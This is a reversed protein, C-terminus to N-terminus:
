KQSLLIWSSPTIIQVENELHIWFDQSVRKQALSILELMESHTATGDSMLFNAHMDSFYAWGIKHWKLGVQEILYGATQEKSPNKFFSGCSLGKPQKHERFYINDVDSAYKEKKRSLDFTASLCFLHRDNKLRSFRYSFDMDESDLNVIDGSQLDLCVCSTFNNEIELGFCGANGYVAGGVSGPLGIFRHWLDISHKEELESALEWISQWSESTLVKEDSLTYGQSTNHIVLGPYRDFAILMNTGGSIILIPLDEQTSFECAELVSSIDSVWTYEVFFDAVAPIRYGSLHTIDKNTQLM